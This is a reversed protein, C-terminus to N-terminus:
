KKAARKTTKIPEETEEVIADDKLTPDFAIAYGKHILAEEIEPDLTTPHLPKVVTHGLVSKVNRHWRDTAIIM